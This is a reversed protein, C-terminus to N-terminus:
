HSCPPQPRPNSQGFHFSRATLSPTREHEGPESDYSLLPCTATHSSNNETVANIALKLRAIGGSTDVKLGAAGIIKGPFRTLAPM